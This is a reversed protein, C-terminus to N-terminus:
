FLHVLLSDWLSFILNSIHFQYPFLSTTRVVVHFLFPLSISAWNWLIYIRNLLIALVPENECYIYEIWFNTVRKKLLLLLLTTIFHWNVWSKHTTPIKRIVIKWRPDRHGVRYLPRKTYTNLFQFNNNSFIQLFIHPHFFANFYTFYQKFVSFPQKFDCDLCGGNQM